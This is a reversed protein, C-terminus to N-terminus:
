LGSCKHINMATDYCSTSCKSANMEFNYFWSGTKGRLPFRFKFVDEEWSSGKNQCTRATYCSPCKAIIESLSLPKVRLSHM